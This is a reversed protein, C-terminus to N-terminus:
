SVQENTKVKFAPPLAWAHPASMMQPVGRQAPKSSPRLNFAGLDSDKRLQPPEEHKLRPEYTLRGGDLVAYAVRARHKEPGEIVWQNGERVLRMQSRARWWQNVERPLAIWMKGQSRLDALYALLSKYIHRTRPGVIYDPHVIFSAM